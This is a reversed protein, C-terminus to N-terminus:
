CLKPAEHVNIDLRGKGSGLPDFLSLLSRLQVHGILTLINVRTSGRKTGSIKKKRGEPIEPINSAPIMVDHCGSMVDTHTLCSDQLGGGGSM